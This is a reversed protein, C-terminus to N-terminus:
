FENIIYEDNIAFTIFLASHYSSGPTFLLQM